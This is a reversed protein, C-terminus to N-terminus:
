YYNNDFDINSNEKKLKIFLVNNYPQSTLNNFYKNNEEETNKYLLVKNNFKKRKEDPNISRRVTKNKGGAM